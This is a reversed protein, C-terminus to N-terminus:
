RIKPVSDKIAGGWDLKSDDVFNRSTQSFKAEDDGILNQQTTVFYEDPVKIRRGSDDVTELLMGIGSASMSERYVPYIKEVTFKGIPQTMRGPLFQVHKIVRDSVTTMQNQLIPAINVPKQSAINVPQMPAPPPVQAVVQQKQIPAAPCVATNTPEFDSEELNELVINKMNFKRNAIILDNKTIRSPIKKRVFEFVEWEIILIDRRALQQMLAQYLKDLPYDETAKGYVKKFNKQNERDYDFSDKIKDYYIYNVEYGM